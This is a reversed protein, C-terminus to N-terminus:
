NKLYLFDSIYSKYFIKNQDGGTLKIMIVDSHTHRWKCVNFKNVSGSFKDWVFLMSNNTKRFFILKICILNVGTHTWHIAISTKHFWCYVNPTYSFLLYASNADSVWTCDTTWWHSPYCRANLLKKCISCFTWVFKFSINFFSVIINPM